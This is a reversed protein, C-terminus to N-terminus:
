QFLNNIKVFVYIDFEENSGEFEFGMRKVMNISPLNKNHIIAEFRKISWKSAAYEMLKFVAESAYGKHKEKDDLLYSVEATDANNSNLVIGIVGIKKLSKKEICIWEFRNQNTMYSNFFWSIHEDGTIMHPNKFFKYVDPDSRWRVVEDADVDEMGRLMLRESEFNDQGKKM